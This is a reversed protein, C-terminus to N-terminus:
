HGRLMKEIDATKMLHGKPLEATTDTGEAMGPLPTRGFDMSKEKTKEAAKKAELLADVNSSKSKCKCATDPEEPAEATVNEPEAPKEANEKADLRAELAEIKQVLQAIIDEKGDEKESVEEEPPAQASAEEETMNEKEKNGSGEPFFKARFNASTIWSEPNAPSPCTSIDYLYLRNIEDHCETSSCVREKSEIHFGISVAPKRGSIIESWATDYIDEGRYVAAKCKVATYGNKSEAAEYSYVTGITMSTHSDFLPGGAAIYEPMAELVAAAKVKDNQRDIVEASAFFEIRRVDSISDWAKEASETENYVSLWKAQDEESLALRVQPPLDSVSNYTMGLTAETTWSYFLSTCPEGSISGTPM